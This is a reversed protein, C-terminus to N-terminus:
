RRATAWRYRQARAQQRETASLNRIEGLQRRLATSVAECAQRPARHAGSSPEPILEDILGSDLAHKATLQLAEAASAVQGEDEWLRRALLEPDAVTAIAHQLMLVRDCVALAMGEAGVLEGVVCALSPVPLQVLSRLCRVAEAMRGAAAASDDPGHDRDTADIFTIVPLGFRGALELLRHVKRLDGQGSARGHHKQQGIALVAERQLWGVCAVLSADDGREAGGHLECRDSLLQEIYDRARPRAVHRALQVQQWPELKSLVKKRLAMAKQELREIERTFDVDGGSLGRLQEIKRELEVVPREFDLVAFDLTSSGGSQMM